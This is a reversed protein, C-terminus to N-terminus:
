KDKNPLLSLICNDLIYYFYKIDFKENPKLLVTGDAGRFFQFDIYKLSCSHDGFLIIPLDTVPNNEDSYGSIIKTSEQTVVPTKGEEKINFKEIKRTSGQISQIS